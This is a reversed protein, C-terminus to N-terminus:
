TMTLHPMPLNQISSSALYSFTLAYEETISPYQDSHTHHFLYAPFTLRHNLLKNSCFSLHHSDYQKDYLPYYSLSQGIHNENYLYTFAAINQCCFILLGCYIIYNFYSHAHIQVFSLYFYSIVAFLVGLELLPYFGPFASFLRKRSQKIGTPERCVLICLLPPPALSLKKLM